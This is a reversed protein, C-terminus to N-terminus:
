VCETIRGTRVRQAAASAHRESGPTFPKLMLKSEVIHQPRRARERSKCAYLVLGARAARAEDTPGPEETLVFSGDLTRYLM